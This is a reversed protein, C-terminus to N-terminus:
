SPFYKVKGAIGGVGGDKPHSLGNSVNVSAFDFPSVGELCAANVGYIEPNSRRQHFTYIGCESCFYHAVEGSNFRYQTLKQQGKVVEIRKASVMVAGRMDCFSCNCRTATNLGDTLEVNFVVAGCHCQASRNDAM